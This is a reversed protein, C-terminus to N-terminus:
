NLTEILYIAQEIEMNLDAGGNFWLTEREGGMMITISYAGGDRSTGFSCAGGRSTVACVIALLAEPAANAWDVAGSHKNHFLKGLRGANDVSGRKSKSGRKDRENLQEDTPM